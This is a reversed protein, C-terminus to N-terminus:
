LTAVDKWVINSDICGPEREPAKTNELEKAAALYSEIRASPM